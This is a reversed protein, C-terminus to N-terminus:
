GLLQLKEFSLQYYSVRFNVNQIICTNGGSLRRITLKLNLTSKTEKMNKSNKQKKKQGTQAEGNICEFRNDGKENKM